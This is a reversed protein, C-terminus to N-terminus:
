RIAALREQWDRGLIITADLYLAPEPQLQVEEVGLADAVSRAAGSRESRDIVIDFTTPTITDGMDYVRVYDIKFEQPFISTGDPNGPFNGGIAMNLIIHFNAGGIRDVAGGESFGSNTAAHFGVVQDMNRM